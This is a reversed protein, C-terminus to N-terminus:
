STTTSSHQKTEICDSNCMTKRFCEVKSSIVIYKINALGLPDGPYLATNFTTTLWHKHHYGPVIYGFTCYM